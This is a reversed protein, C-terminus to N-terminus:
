KWLIRGTHFPNSLDDHSPVVRISFGHQGSTRCVIRGVFERGGDASAKDAVMPVVEAGAIDGDQDLLGEFIQVAVQEPKLAGLRVRARVTLESGVPLEEVSETEVSEIRLNRWEADLLAMYEALARAKALGDATLRQYRKAAPLYFREAYEHVMRNTNFVPCISRMAAKMREIWRRPLDDPGRDYFMPIVEKELMDYIARSEIDDQYDYDEGYNEGLGITWGNDNNFGEVWWGDPISMNIAGNATAKMGSTGSAEMPRRPTNLWLDVGQVLYRGVNIDYDELFVVHRPLRRAFQVIRRILEKGSNDKPHAKGAFIIQVPREKDTLLRELRDPDRLLLTARKYAAFRRAFGITLAEPDLVEEARAIEGPPAGRRELQDRQRRRAFAVLRERRREHTRWLEGDPIQEVRRWVTQDASSEIWKPGLYRNYLGVLEHSIWSRTHMGNTISTVPVEEIPVGNWVRAWMRRSVEGHLKSVGNAAAANKLALVTMCFPEDKDHPDQRGLALFQPRSLGLAQYYDAFYKDIVRPDFMDNGAPVPTHTTFVNGAAVAQRAEAFSVKKEEMLLRVRELTLFASHGENMHCVTPEIGLAKLARIGGIGLMIEQRMRDESGTEGGYLRATIERDEPRNEDINADLMYLTVRGVAVQWIQAKVPGAPYPVAITLAKGKPERVLSVPMNFFDNDPYYEQQWGEPNLYQRFYGERYLLGVGVLPVGLDSASKTLDGSLVGLGGSYIPMSETLGYELSFYAIKIGSPDPHASKFWTTSEMYDTFQDHVREIHALVGEDAALQEFREPSIMGLMAAPNHYTQEWLDRDLRRFLEIAEPNWCWWLNYALDRLRKLKDPLSPVVVFKRTPKM